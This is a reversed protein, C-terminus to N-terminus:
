WQIIFMNILHLNGAYIDLIVILSKLNIGFEICITAFTHRHSHLNAESFIVILCIKQITEVFAVSDSSLLYKDSERIFSKLIRALIDPLGNM